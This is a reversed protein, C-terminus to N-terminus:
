VVIQEGESRAECAADIAKLVPSADGSTHDCLLYLVKALSLRGESWGCREGFAGVVSEHCSAMPATWAFAGPLRAGVLKAGEAADGGLVRAAISAGLKQVSQRAQIEETLAQAAAADGSSLYKRYLYDLKINRSDVSSQPVSTSLGAAPSRLTGSPGEFDSTDEKMFSSVQGYQMVHSKNTLQKVQSFQQLLTEKSSGASETDMMWNVSFLDGLCSPISTGGVTADSGCYTGWSSEEANAATLAYVPLDTPLLGEFISGSECTELYFMLQKYMGKKHMAELTSVLKKSHLVKQGDPFAILGVGGHDVFNVFVHDDAKSGLVKGGATEADGSLVAVFRDPTVQEGSYDIKCGAYVDVAEEMTKWPYNYLKGKIPNEASNAVDDYMMTIIKEAEFGREILLSYAHCVDAQHRYNYFGNSGAVLVAWHDEGQVAAVGFAALAFAHLM